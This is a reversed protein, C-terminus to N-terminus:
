VEILRAAALLLPRVQKIGRELNAMIDDMSIERDAIGAAWNVVLALCAYEIDLERALGAEPMGTMGVLSCGDRRMRLIEAATEFRPGNSCGYTGSDVIALDLQAAARKLCDQLTASYPQSFDVHQVVEDSGDCFSHERGWSYDILQQPLAMTSPAMDTGIGGVANVAIIKSVGAQKLAWLNARYNVLHPPVRHGPGHRPLFAIDIDQWRGLLVDASTEGYPTQRACQDSLYFEDGLSYLGSGGIISLM